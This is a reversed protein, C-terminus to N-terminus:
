KSKKLLSRRSLINYTNVISTVVLIGLAIAGAISFTDIGKSFGLDFEKQVMYLMTNYIGLGPSLPLIGPITFIIAPKKLKRALIEGSFAVFAAAFFTSVIASGNWKFLFIYLIWGLGGVVGSPILSIRPANFYIVFGVTALFAFIFNLYIPLDVM